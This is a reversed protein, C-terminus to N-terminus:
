VQGSMQQLRATSEFQQAMTAIAPAATQLTGDGIIDDVAGFTAANAAEGGGASSTMTVSLQLERQQGAAPKVAQLLMCEYM